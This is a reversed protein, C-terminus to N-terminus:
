SCIFKRIVPYLKEYEEMEGTLHINNEELTYVKWLKM